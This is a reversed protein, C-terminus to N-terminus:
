AQDERHQERIIELGGKRFATTQITLIPTFCAVYMKWINIEFSNQFNYM